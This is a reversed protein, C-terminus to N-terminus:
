GKEGHQGFQRLNVQHKVFLSFKDGQCILLYLLFSIHNLMSDFYFM